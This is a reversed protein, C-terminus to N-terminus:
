RAATVLPLWLLKPPVTLTGTASAPNYTQDELTLSATPLPITGSFYAAVAYEGASLAALALDQDTLLAQGAYDTRVTTQATGGSGTVILFITRYAIPRGQADQLTAVLLAEPDSTLTLTTDQKTITFPAAEGAAPGYDSTGAFVANLSYDDPPSLLRLLVRAQGNQDTRGSVRQTGLVFTVRQDALPTGNSTLTATLPLRTGYAGSAPRTDLSISTSQQNSSTTGVGPDVGPTYYAGANDSRTVLGTGNVAQAMYRLDAATTGNLPLTGEWVRSDSSRTLDLSQWTGALPGGTATYTIWVEQIGAAPDGAVTVSFNIQDTEPEAQIVAITPPASLAPTNGGYRQINNSYFLRFNMGTFQRRTGTAMGPASAQFQMPTVQLETQGGTPDSLLDIYNVHWPQEPFFYDSDFGVQVGRIETAPAGVLPRVNPTDQYSGGRFGVGRLVTDPVGVDRTELPLVPEGPRVAVGASGTLYTATFTRTPATVGTLTVAEETLSPTLSLDAYQLGLTQGPNVSYDTVGPVNALQVAPTIRAGPLDVSLMPLGFLTPIRVTKDDIGELQPTAALYDLKAAVLAKGVAVPDSGTRLQKSFEVYLQENYAVFETDGYQYGTGGILTAGKRAFAQAWDPERTVQPIGHENVINYGSHCGQSFIISNTMDLASTAVSGAALTTVHDAALTSSAHFHGALFILDHRGQELLATRLDDATWSEAPALGRPAILTSAPQETGAELEAQVAEAADTMFDYGTVLARTPTAVVGGETSLYADLMTTADAATEVLRGVALDPIPLEDSGSAISTEAGYADQSLIYNLRLSSQSSTNDQVPAVFDSEPGLPAQDPSRFYPIVDDNGVLVVYELPNLERYRDIIAKIETALLNQAFPCAPNADSQARAAQVRQEDTIDVVVGQVEPRAALTALREQLTSKEASSGAMRALDTLIITRYNGANATLTADATVPAVSSCQGTELTVNLTYEGSPAFAGNRGTVRVYFDGQNNWTNVTVTEHATGDAASIGILSQSQASAYAEPDGSFAQPSFAQPSFAQPSFAQPSFAQPSFAQPSFAQPSFAQPAIVASSYNEPEFAEPAFAEPSLVQPSLADPALPDANNDGTNGDATLRALDALDDAGSIEAYAAAIDTYVTLDYNAPLGSGDPAQLSVSARSDPQVAFKYWRSQSELTLYDSVSTSLPDGTLNLRTATPWTTNGSTVRLCNSFESTNGDPDTATAIVAPFFFPATLTTTFTANGSADTTATTSGLFADGEDSNIGTRSCFTNAFIDITFPKNASSNLRGRVTLANGDPTAALLVPANQLNNAGTDTDGVDNPTPGDGEGLNIGLGDNAYTASRITNSVGSTVRVGDGGNLSLTNSIIRNNDGVIEVGHQDFGTLELGQITSDDAELALGSGSGDISAGYIEVVPTGAFGSNTTADITITETIVPLPSDLTIRYTGNGTSYVPDTINFTIIDPGPSDNAQGIADRLSNPGSDADTTITALPEAHTVVQPVVLHPTLIALLTLIILRHWAPRKTGTTSSTTKIQNAQAHQQM